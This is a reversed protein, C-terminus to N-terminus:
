LCSAEEEWMNGQEQSSKKERKLLHKQLSVNYKRSFRIMELFNEHKIHEDELTFASAILGRFPLGQKGIFKLM